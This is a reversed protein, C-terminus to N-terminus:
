HPLYNGVQLLARGEDKGHRDLMSFLESVHKATSSEGSNSDRTTSVLGLAFPEVGSPTCPVDLDDTVTGEQRLSKVERRNGGQHNSARCTRWAEINLHKTSAHALSWALAVAQHDIHHAIVWFEGVLHDQWLNNAHARLLLGVDEGASLRLM